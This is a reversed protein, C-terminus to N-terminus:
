PTAEPAPPLPMWHTARIFPYPEVERDEWDDTLDLWKGDRWFCDPWREGADRVSDFVWLDVFTGDRPATEVPKWQEVM